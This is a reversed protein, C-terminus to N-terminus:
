AGALTWESPATSEDAAVVSAFIPALIRFLQAPLASTFGYGAAQPGAVYATITGFHRYGITFVLTATRNVARSEILRGGPGYVHFRNDGTGTKGGVAMPKGDPRVVTGLARRATGREVTDLLARRLAAAVEPSMVREGAAPAREVLTEYPTEAAFHLAQAQVTPYRLGGNQIIGALEALAAPRDGSSGIATALSPVLRDFPYGKERWSRHLVEFGKQEILTWIRIDQAARRHPKRLWGYIEQRVGASAAVVDRWTAKPHSLRYHLLWLELPHMDALYGREHWSFSSVDTEDYLAEARGAELRDTLEALLATFADRGVDPVVSRLAWAFRRPTPQHHAALANVLDERRTEGYRDWSRRLFVRSERAVFRDLYKARRPDGADELMTAPSGPLRGIHYRIIDRMLRIFPLNISHLFADRVSVARGDYTDDFNRFVHLGGGTYFSEYRSASYRHELAAELMPALERDAAGALHDIAWRTLPDPAAARAERLGDVTLGGYERHLSEVIELYSVLTRLKATSGLELKAGQNLDFPQDLTDVQVRVLNGQAAREYLVVAYRVPAPDSRGLLRPGELGARSAHERDALKRLEADVAAQARLDFTSSVTLDLKDLAYLQRLGLLALLETRVSRAAERHGSPAASLAPARTRLAARRRLAADALAPDIHGQRSLLRLYADTRRDLAARGRPTTLYYTPRRQALFLSLVRRFAEAREGPSFSHPEGLARHLDELEVGYWAWLGDGLGIVEGHGAIGALPMSSLYSVVIRRQAELTQDGDRYGRLSASVMQRLKEAASATRGGPSHRLKELQTALTSAGPAERRSDLLRLSHEAVARGLRPWEVAPNRRPYRQDLLERNEIYLLTEWVIRPVEDFGRYVRSPHPREFLERGKRDVVALGAQDKEDYIPFLGGRVLDRQWGSPRAQAVIRYLSPDLRALTAPLRTYGLRQDYPGAAATLPEPAPGSALAAGLEAAVRSFFRAQLASTRMETRAAALPVLLAAVAEACGLLLWRRRWLRSRARAWTGRLDMAHTMRR